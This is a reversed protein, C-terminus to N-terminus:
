AETISDDYNSQVSIDMVNNWTFGPINDPFLMPESFNIAVQGQSNM